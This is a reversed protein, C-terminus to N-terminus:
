WPNWQNACSADEGSSNCQKVSGSYAETQEYMEYAAHHYPIPVTPPIHPVTDKYHVVRFQNAMTKNSFASYTADGVRPQGFNIMTATIGDKLLAM